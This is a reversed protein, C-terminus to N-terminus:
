ESIDKKIKEYEEKTIEGKAYRKKLIDIATGSSQASNKGSVTLWRVLLVIGAIVVLWFIVMFFWGFWGMTGYGWGMMGPGTMRYGDGPGQAHVYSGASLLVATMLLFTKKM